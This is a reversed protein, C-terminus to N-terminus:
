DSARLSPAGQYNRWGEAHSKETARGRHIWLRYQLVLPEGTKLAFRTQSAPFTPQFWNLDPYEIWDGPYDPNAENQLISLGTLSTGGEFIGSLEAWAMRPNSGEADTHFAIVQDKVRALRVNLGGYKDTDRRAVTVEDALATFQFWLDVCRGHEKNRYARIIAIERVIPTRDEWLWLNEAEIQGFDKGSTLKPDGSPRAFVRQLAHLDGMKEGLQVEPWAWYIGRHHPHDVSWDYTLEEGDFGYLPHIYDSRPRAYKLNEASFESPENPEVTSYNYRLIPQGGELLVIQGIETDRVAQIIPQMESRDGSACGVGVM